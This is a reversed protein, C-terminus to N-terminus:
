EWEVNYKGHEIELKDLNDLIDEEMRDYMIELELDLLTLIDYIDYRDLVEQKIGEREELSFYESTL